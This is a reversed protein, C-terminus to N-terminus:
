SHAFYKELAKFHGSGDSLKRYTEATVWEHHIHENSTLVDGSIYKCRLGTLYVLRGENKHGPPLAFHWACFVEGIDIQLGTEEKVERRLSDMFNTEGVQIKGGPFDLKGKPNKLILVAGNKEIFAKQGVYFLQDEEM